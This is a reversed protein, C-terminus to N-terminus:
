RCDSQFKTRLNELKKMLASTKPGLGPQGSGSRGSMENNIQNQLEVIQKDLRACNTPTHVPAMGWCYRRSDGKQEVCIASDSRTLKGSAWKEDIKVYDVGPKFGKECEKLCKAYGAYFSGKQFGEFSGDMNGCATIVGTGMNELMAGSQADLVWGTGKEESCGAYASPSFLALATLLAALWNSSQTFSMPNDSM